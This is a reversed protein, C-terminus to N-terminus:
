KKMTITGSWNHHSNIDQSSNYDNSMGSGTAGKYRGTGGLIEFPDQWYSIVYEPMDDLRGQIVKGSISIFLTDGMETVMYADTQGYDGEPGVCFDFNGTFNGIPTGDGEFDVIVRIFDCKPELGTTDKDDPGAYKYDGIFQAEFPVTVFTDKGHGFFNDYHTCSVTMALVATFLVIQKFTKM